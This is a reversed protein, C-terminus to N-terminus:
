DKRKGKLWFKKRKGVFFSFLFFDFLKRENKKMKEGLIRFNKEEL